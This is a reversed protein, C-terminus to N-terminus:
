PQLLRRALERTKEPAGPLRLIDGKGDVGRFLADGVYECGLAEYWYKVTLVAGDFLKAGSTAACSLFVGKKNRGSTLGLTRRQNFFLQGRDIMMKVHGPIGYFYVPAALVILDAEDLIPYLDQMADEQVCRGSVCKDCGLCPRISLPAIIRQVSHSATPVASLFEDLLIDTNGGRRASGAIGMVKM